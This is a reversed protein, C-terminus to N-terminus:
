SLPPRSLATVGCLTPPCHVPALPQPFFPAFSRAPSITPLPAPSSISRPPRAGEGRALRWRAASAGHASSPHARAAHAVRGGGRVQPRPRRVERRSRRRPGRFSGSRIPDCEQGDRRRLRAAGVQLLSLPTFPLPTHVLSPHSHSLPLCRGSRAMSAACRSRERRRRRCSRTRRGRM